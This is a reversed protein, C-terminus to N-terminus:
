ETTDQGDKVLHPHSVILSSFMDRLERVQEAKPVMIRLGDHYLVTGVDKFGLKDLVTRLAPMEEKMDRHNEQLTKERAKRRAERAAYTEWLEKVYYGSVVSVYGSDYLLEIGKRKESRIQKQGKSLVLARERKGGYGTKIAYYKGVVIDKARM